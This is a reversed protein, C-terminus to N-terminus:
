AYYRGEVKKMAAKYALANVAAAFLLLIATLLLTGQRGEWFSLYLCYLVVEAVTAIYGALYNIYVYTGFRVLLTASVSLSDCLLTLLIWQLINEATSETLSVGAALEALKAAGTVALATFLKRALDFGVACRVLGLGRPSTKLYDMNEAYKSQIGGLYWNDAIVEALVLLGATVAAGVYELVGVSLFQFAILIAPIVAFVLLKYVFSTFVLYNKIRRRMM